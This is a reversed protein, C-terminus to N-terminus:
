NIPNITRLMKLIQLLFVNHKIKSNIEPPFLSKKKKAQEEAYESATLMKNERSSFGEIIIETVLIEEPIDDQPPLALASVNSINLLLFSFYFSSLKMIAM